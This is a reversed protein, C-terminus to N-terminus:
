AFAPFNGHVMPATGLLNVSRVDGEVVEYPNLTGTGGSSSISSATMLLGTACADRGHRNSQFTPLSRSFALLGGHKGICAKAQFTAQSDLAFICSTFYIAVWSVRLM